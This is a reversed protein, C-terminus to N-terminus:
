ELFVELRKMKKTKEEKNILDDLALFSEMTPSYRRAYVFVDEFCRHFLTIAYQLALTARITEKFQGAVIKLKHYYKYVDLELEM